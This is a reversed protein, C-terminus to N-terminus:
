KRFNEQPLMGGSGGLRADHMCACYLKTYSGKQFDQSRAQGAEALLLATLM